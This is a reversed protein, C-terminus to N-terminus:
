ATLTELITEEISEAGLEHVQKISVEIRGKTYVWKKSGSDFAWFPAFAQISFEDHAIIGELVKFPPSEEGARTVVRLVNDEKSFYRSTVTVPEDGALEIWTFSGYDPNTGPTFSRASQADDALVQTSKQVQRSASAENSLKAPLRIQTRLISSLPVTIIATIALTVTLEVLSLGLQTKFIRM